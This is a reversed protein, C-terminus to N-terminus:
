RRVTVTAGLLRGATRESAGVELGIRRAKALRRRVAGPLRVRVTKVGAAAITTTARGATRPAHLAKATRADLRVQLTVM